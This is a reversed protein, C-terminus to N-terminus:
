NLQLYKSHGTIDWDLQPVAYRKFETRRKREPGLLNMNKDCTFLIM